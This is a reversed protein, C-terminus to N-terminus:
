STLGVSLVQGRLLRILLAAAAVRFSHLQCLQFQVLSGEPLLGVPELL